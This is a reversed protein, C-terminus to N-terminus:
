KVHCEQVVTYKYTEKYVAILNSSTESAYELKFAIYAKSIVLSVRYM